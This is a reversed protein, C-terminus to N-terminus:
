KVENKDDKIISLRPKPTAAFRLKPEITLSRTTGETNDDADHGNCLLDESISGTIRSAANQMSERALHAYRSTTQVNTHGLLKGIMTLSEGLALARSAFSHRLDHIRVDELGARQRVRQWPRQLDGLRTGSRHGTIVWPNNPERPIADLVARAEPGLPVARAGTKADPLDICDTKVYEWRLGCIESKRCGTLLLLRLAAVASPMDIEFERLAAGLRVIEEESLFRERPHEKFRHVGRCPNSHDPRWGWLEALSFMKSLVSLMRNANYPHSRLSHHLAVVDKRQVDLIRIEGITPAIHIEVLRRYDEQTRPKCHNPVYEELFRQCLDAVSENTGYQKADVLTEEAKVRVDNPSMSRINDKLQAQFQVLDTKIAAQLKALDAKTAMDDITRGDSATAGGAEAHGVQDHSAEESDLTTPNTVTDPHRAARSGKTM